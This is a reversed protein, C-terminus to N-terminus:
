DRSTAYKCCKARKLMGLEKSWWRKSYLSPQLQIQPVKACITDQIAKTFETVATTSEEGMSIIESRSVNVLRITLKDNFEEWDVEWFNLSPVAPLCHIPFELVMLIPM